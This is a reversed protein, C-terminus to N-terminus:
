KTYRKLFMKRLSMSKQENVFHLPIEASLRLIGTLAFLVQEPLLVMNGIIIKPPFLIGSLLISTLMMFSGCSAYIASWHQEKGRPSIALVFNFAILNAGSWMIGSTIGEVWILSYSTETFFIWVLPNLTGIFVCIKMASKNGFRDIFKGWFRFSILMGIAQLMGYIQMEVLSMNLTRLMFPGWFPAGVGIAFMWWMGFFLLKRFDKNKLPEFISFSANDITSKRREPQKQLLRLGYLGL